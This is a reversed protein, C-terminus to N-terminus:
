RQSRDRSIYAIGRSKMERIIAMPLRGTVSIAYVGKSANRNIHQWKCVWSDEPSMVAIMGDFNSSTYEMIHEKSNKLRLIEDCNDCGDLEFQDFTKILACSLCARLSRLDKPVTEM